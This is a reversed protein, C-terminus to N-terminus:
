KNKLAKTLARRVLVAIMEQRYAVPANVNNVVFVSAHERAITAAAQLAEHDTTAQGILRQSAKALLLPANSVAGVVIRADEIMRKAIRVNVGVAVMPFDIASRYSLREYAQGSDHDPMPVQIEVLIEDPELALPQEGRASYLDVLPITRQSGRRAVTVRANLAILM